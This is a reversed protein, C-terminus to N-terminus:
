GSDSAAAYGHPIGPSKSLVPRNAPSTRAASEPRDAGIKPRHGPPGELDLGPPTVEIKMSASIRMLGQALTSESRRIACVSPTPRAKDDMVPVTWTTKSAGARSPLRITWVLTM